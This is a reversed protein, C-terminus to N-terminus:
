ITEKVKTTNNQQNAKHSTIGYQEFLHQQPAFEGFYDAEAQLRSKIADDKNAFKGLHVTQYDVTINAEWKKDRAYWCVGIVGSKNNSKLTTNKNNQRKTALRLNFKRNDYPKRNIHDICLGNPCNTIIRHLYIKNGKYLCRVYGDSEVYWCYDKIKNYDELDFYFEKNNCDYGIGYKPTFSYRNAKTNNKGQKRAVEKQLCGCSKIAGRKLANGNVIKQNGCDCKCLWQPTHAGKPSVYDEVREVVM